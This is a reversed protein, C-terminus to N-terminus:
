TPPMQEPPTASAADNPRTQIRWAMLMLAASFAESIMATIIDTSLADGSLVGFLRGVLATGFLAAPVLLARSWGPVLAGLAAGGAAVLFFSSFDARVTNVAVGDVTMGFMEAYASPDFLGRLGVLAFFAAWLLLLGRLALRM